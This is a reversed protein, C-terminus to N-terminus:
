LKMDGFDMDDLDNKSIPQWVYTSVMQIESKFKTDTLKWDYDQGKVLLSSLQNDEDYTAKLRDPYQRLLEQVLEIARQEVIDQTRNQALFARM